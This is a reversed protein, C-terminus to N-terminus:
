GAVTVAFGPRTITQTQNAATVTLGHGYLFTVQTPGNPTVDAIFIGGRVGITATPTRLTVADENKSLKGGVFRLVGATASMALQGKGTNPDYVFNDITVESSPGVTMASEDVFLIQTQGGAGTKILEDHVVQQGIVLQHPTAGPPTGSADPNVASNVGVRQAQAPLGTGLLAPVLGLAPAIRSLRSM